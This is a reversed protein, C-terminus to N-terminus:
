VPHTLNKRIGNLATTTVSEASPILEVVIASYPCIARNDKTQILRDQVDLGSLAAGVKWFRKPERWAACLSNRRSGRGSTLDM